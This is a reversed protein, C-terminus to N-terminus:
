QDIRETVLIASPVAPAIAGAATYDITVAANSPLWMLQLYDSAALTVYLVIQFYAVGGDAAKPVNLITASNAINTGNKRLWVTVNRDTTDSNAFQISPAFMYTGAAAYTVRTLASGDTVVTVGKTSIDNTGFKIATAASISGTQDTVDYFSGYKAAAYAVDTTSAKVSGYSGSALQSLEVLEAGTLPTAAATLESIKKTAM